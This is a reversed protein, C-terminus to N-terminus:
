GDKAEYEAGRCVNTMDARQEDTIQSFRKRKWHFDWLEMDEPPPWEIGIDKCRIRKGAIMVHDDDFTM